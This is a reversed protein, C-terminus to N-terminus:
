ICRGIIPKLDCGKKWSCGLLILTHIKASSAVRANGEKFIIKKKFDGTIMLFHNEVHVM